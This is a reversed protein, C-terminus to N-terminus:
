QTAVAWGKDNRDINGNFTNKVDFGKQNFDTMADVLKTKMVKKPDAASTWEVQFETVVFNGNENLGPGFGALSDDTLAELMLGSITAKGTVPITLTYDANGVPGGSSLVSADEQVALKFGGTAEAKAPKQAAWKTWLRDITLAKEFEAVKKPLEVTEFTKLAKDAEAIRNKQEAEAQAKTKNYEPTYATIDANAKNIAVLRTKERESKKPVWEGEKRALEAIMLNHDDEIGSWNEQVAAIEAANPTRNL